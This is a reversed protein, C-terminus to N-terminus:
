VTDAVDIGFDFLAIMAKTGGSLADLINSYNSLALDSILALQAIAEVIDGTGHTISEANTESEGRLDKETM